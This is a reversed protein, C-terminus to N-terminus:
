CRSKKYENLFDNSDKHIQFHLGLKNKSHVQLRYMGLNKRKGDLSHTYVQGMTIFPASDQEWTTLIPLKSLDVDDNQYIIEQCAGRTKLRKPFISKLSFLQSFMAMKDVFGSPMSPKLLGSIEDCIADIDGFIEKIMEMSSFLNMMVPIDFKINNKKDVPSTFLLVKANEQKIKVYAIHAM